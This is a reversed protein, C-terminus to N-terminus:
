SKSGVNRDPWVGRAYAPPCKTIRVGNEVVIEPKGLAAYSYLMKFMKHCEVVHKGVARAIEKTIDGTPALEM